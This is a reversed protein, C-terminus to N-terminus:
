PESGDLIAWITYVMDLDFALLNANSYRFFPMSCKGGTGAYDCGTGKWTSHQETVGNTDHELSGSLATTENNTLVNNSDQAELEHRPPRPTEPPEYQRFPSRTSTSAIDPPGTIDWPKYAQLYNWISDAAKNAGCEEAAEVIKRDKLAKICTERGGASVKPWRFRTDTDSAIHSPSPVSRGNSAEDPLILLVGRSGLATSLQHFKRGAATLSALRKAIDSPSQNVLSSKSILRAFDKKNTDYHETKWCYLLTTLFIWLRHQQSLNNLHNFLHPLPDHQLCLPGIEALFAEPTAAWVPLQPQLYGPCKIPEQQGGKRVKKVIEVGIPDPARKRTWGLDRQLDAPV